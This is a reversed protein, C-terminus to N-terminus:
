NLNINIYNRNCVITKNKVVINGQKDTRLVLAGSEVLRNIVSKDPTEVGNSTVIAINPKTKKLFENTASTNLGHHPVKLIHCTELEEAKLMDSEERKECDAAFLYKIDGVKGQLVISNNNEVRKDENIPGIAKLYIKNNKLVWNKRIYEVETGMNTLTKSLNHKVNSKHNPLYVKTVKRTEAIKFIGDYHDDHYHTLIIGDVKTIKNADLYKIIKETYYSAGTDIIYNKDQLKILICDSQGTDLFHVECNQQKAATISGMFIIFIFTILLVIKKKM